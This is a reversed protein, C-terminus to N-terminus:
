DVIAVLDCVCLYVSFVPVASRTHTYIYTHTDVHGSASLASKSVQVQTLKVSKKGKKKRVIFPYQDSAFLFLLYYPSLM